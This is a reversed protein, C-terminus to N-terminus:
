RHDKTIHANCVVHHLSFAMHGDVAPRKTAALRAQIASSIPWHSPPAHFPTRLTRVTVRALCLPRLINPERVVGELLIRHMFSCWRYRMESRPPQRPVLPPGRVLKLVGPLARAPGPRPTAM